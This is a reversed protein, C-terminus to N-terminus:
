CSRWICVVVTQRLYIESIRGAKSFERCDLLSPLTFGQTEHAGVAAAVPRPNGYTIHDSIRIELKVRDSLGWFALSRPCMPTASVSQVNPYPHTEIREHVIRILTPPAYIHIRMYPAQPAQGHQGEPAPM